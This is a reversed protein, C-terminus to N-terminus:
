QAVALSFACAESVVLMLKKVDKKSYLMEEGASPKAYPPDCKIKATVAEFRDANVGVKEAYSKAAMDIICLLQEQSFEPTEEDEDCIHMDQLQGGCQSSRTKQVIPTYPKDFCSKLRIGKARAEQLAAPWSARPLDLVALPAQDGSGAYTVLTRCNCYFEIRVVEDSFLSLSTEASDADIDQQVSVQVTNTTCGEDTLDQVRACVVDVCARCFHLADCVYSQPLPEWCGSCHIKEPARHIAEEQPCSQKSEKTSDPAHVADMPEGTSLSEPNRTLSASGADIWDNAVYHTCFDNYHMGSSDMYDNCGVAQGSQTLSFGMTTVLSLMSDISTTLMALQSSIGTITQAETGRRFLKRKTAAARLRRLKSSSLVALCAIDDM